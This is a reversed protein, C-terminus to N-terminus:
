NEINYKVNLKELTNNVVNNITVNLYSLGEDEIWGSKCVNNNRRRYHYIIGESIKNVNKEKLILSGFAINHINIHHFKNVNHIIYKQFKSAAWECNRHVKFIDLDRMTNIIWKNIDYSFTQYDKRNFYYIDSEKNDIKDLLEDITKINRNIPVIIEDQDMMIINKSVRRYRYFCDNLKIAQAYFSQETRIKSYFTYNLEIIDIIGIKNYYKMIKDIEESWSMKYVVFHDIGFLRNIELWQTFSYSVSYSIFTSLCVTYNYKILNDSSKMIIPPPIKLCKDNLILITPSFHLKPFYIWMNFYNEISYSYFKLFAQCQISSYTSKLQCSYSRPRHNLGYGLIRYHGMREDYFLSTIYIDKEIEFTNMTEYDFISCNYRTIAHLPSPLPYIYLNYFTFLPFAIILLLIPPPIKMVVKIRM